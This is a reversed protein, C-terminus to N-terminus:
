RQHILFETRRNIAHEAESCNSGDYCGNIPMNEGYGRAKLRSRSINRSVLYNLVAEARKQSLEFNYSSEGQADTHSMITIAIDPNEVMLRVVKEIESVSEPKISAQDFDYYIRDLRIVQGLEPTKPVENTTTTTTTTTRSPNTYPNRNTPNIRNGNSGEGSYSHNGPNGYVNPNRDDTYDVHRVEIPTYIYRPEPNSRNETESKPNVITVPVTVNVSGPMNGMTAMYESLSMQDDESPRDREVFREKDWQNMQSELSFFGDEADEKWNPNRNDAIQKGMLMSALTYTHDAMLIEHKKIREDLQHSDDMLKSDQALVHKQEEMLEKLVKAHTAMAMEHKKILNDLAESQRLLKADTKSAAKQKKSLASLTKTHLNMAVEHKDILADLIKSDLLLRSDGSGIVRRESKLETLLHDMLELKSSLNNMETLEEETLPNEYAIDELVFSDEWEELDEAVLQKMAEAAAEKQVEWQYIDDRGAGGARSSSFYGFTGLKNTYFGFDDSPSSFPVGLNEVGGWDGGEPGLTLFIDLGGQGGHGDSSFFLNGGEGYFPFIENGSTNTGAGLNTPDQWKGDRFESVYIDMGGFGGPRNSAFYMKKNDSSLTPHCNSYKKHNFSLDKVNTWKGDVWEASCIKLDVVRDDIRGSKSNRTFYMKKGDNTFCAMGDHLRDNVSGALPVPTGYTGNETIESYYLDTYNKQSPDGKPDLHETRRTTTYVLGDQFPVPSMELDKTNLGELNSIKVKGFYSQDVANQPSPSQNQTTTLGQASISSILGCVLIGILYLDKKM